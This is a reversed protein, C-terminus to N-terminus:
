VRDDEPPSLVLVCTQKSLGARVTFSRRLRGVECRVLVMEQPAYSVTSIVSTRPLLGTPLGDFRPDREYPQAQRPQFTRCSRPQLSKGSSSGSIAPAREDEERRERACQLMAAQEIAAIEFKLDDYRRIADGTVGTM